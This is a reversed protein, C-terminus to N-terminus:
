KKGQARGHRIQVQFKVAVVVQAHRRRVGDGRERGARIGRADGDIAEAFAGAVCRQVFHDHGRLERESFVAAHGRALKGREAIQDRVRRVPRKRGFLWDGARRNEAVLRANV